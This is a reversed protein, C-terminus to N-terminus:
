AAGSGAVAEEEEDEDDVDLEDEDGIETLSTLLEDILGQMRIQVEAITKCGVLIPGARGPLNLIRSRVAENIRAVQTELYEVSVLNKRAEALEIEAQHVEIELARLRLGATASKGPDDKKEELKFKLYWAVCEAVDHERRNKAGITFPLGREYLNRIERSTVNLIPALEQQTVKGSKGSAPARSKTGANEVVKEGTKGPKVTASQKAHAM